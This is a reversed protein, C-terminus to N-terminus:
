NFSIMAFLNAVLLTDEFNGRSVDKMYEIFNQKLISFLKKRQRGYKFNM